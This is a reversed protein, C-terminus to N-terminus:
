EGTTEVRLQGGALATNVTTTGAVLLLTGNAVEIRNAPTTERRHVLQLNYRGGDLLATEFCAPLAPSQVVLTRGVRVSLIEKTGSAAFCVTVPRRAAKLVAEALREISSLTEHFRVRQSEPIMRIGSSAVAHAYNASAARIELRTTAYDYAMAGRSVTRLTEPRRERLAEYFSAFTPPEVPLVVDVTEEPSSHRYHLRNLTLEIELSDNRMSGSRTLEIRIDEPPKPPLPRTLLSCAASALLGLALALRNIVRCGDM